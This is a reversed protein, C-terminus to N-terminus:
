GDVDVHVQWGQQKHRCQGCIVAQCLLLMALLGSCAAATRQMTDPVDPRSGKMM